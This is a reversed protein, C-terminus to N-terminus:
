IEILIWNFARYFDILIGTPVMFQNSFLHELIIYFFLILFTKVHFVLHKSSEVEVETSLSIPM